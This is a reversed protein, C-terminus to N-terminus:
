LPAYPRFNRALESVYRRGLDGGSAALWERFSARGLPPEHSVLLEAALGAAEERTLIV